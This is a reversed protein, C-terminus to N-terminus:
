KVGSMPVINTRNRPSAMARMSTCSASGAPPEGASPPAPAVPVAHAPCFIRCRWSSRVLLGESSEQEIEFALTLKGGVGDAGVLPIELTKQGVQGPAIPLPREVGDVDVFDAAEDGGLMLAPEVSAGNTARQGGQPGQEVMKGPCSAYAAIRGLANRRRLRGPAQRPGEVGVLDPM